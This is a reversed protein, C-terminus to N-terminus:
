SRRRREHANRLGQPTELSYQGRMPRSGSFRLRVPLALTIRIAPSEAEDLASHGGRWRIAQPVCLCPIPQQRVACPAITKGKAVPLRLSTSRTRECAATHHSRYGFTVHTM